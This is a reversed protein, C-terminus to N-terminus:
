KQHLWKWFPWCWRMNCIMFQGAVIWSCVWQMFVKVSLLCIGLIFTTSLWWLKTDHSSAHMLRYHNWLSLLARHLAIPPELASGTKSKASKLMVNIILTINLCLLSQPQTCIKTSMCTRKHKYDLYMYTKISPKPLSCNYSVDIMVLFGDMPRQTKSKMYKM